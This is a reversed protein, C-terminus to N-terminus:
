VFLSRSLAVGARVDAHGRCFIFVVFVRDSELSSVTFERSLGSRKGRWGGRRKTKVCV